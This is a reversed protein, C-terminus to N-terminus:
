SGGLKASYTAVAAMEKVSLHGFTEMDGALDSLGKGIIKVDVGFQKSLHASAVMGETLSDQLSGGSSQAASGLNKMAEASLNMGKKMILLESAAGKIQDQLFVLDNGFDGAIATMEKLIAASNGISAWLSNNAGKLAKNAPVLEKTLSKVFKGQTEDLNGFQKIIAQNAAFMEGAGKNGYANAAEFLGDFFGTVVKLGSGLIGLVGSIGGKFLDISGGIFDFANGIGNIAATFVGAAGVGDGLLGNLRNTSDSVSSTAEGQRGLAAALGESGGKNEQMAETAQQTASTMNNTSETVKDQADKVQQSAAAQGGLAGAIKQLIANQDQLAKNLANVIDLQDQTNPGEAV